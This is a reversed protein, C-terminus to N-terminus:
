RANRSTQSALRAEFAPDHSCTTALPQSIRCIVPLGAATPARASTVRAGAIPREVTAPWSASRKSRRAMPM